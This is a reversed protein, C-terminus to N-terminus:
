CLTYNCWDGCFQDCSENGFQYYQGNCPPPCDQCYGGYSCCRFYNCANTCGSLCFHCNDNCALATLPGALTLGTLSAAGALGGKFLQRRSLSMGGWSRTARDVLGLRAGDDDAM